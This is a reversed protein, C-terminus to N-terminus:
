DYYEEASKLYKATRDLMKKRLEFDVEQNAVYSPHWQFGMEFRYGELINLEEKFKQINDRFQEFDEVYLKKFWYNRNEHAYYATLWRDAISRITMETIFRLGQDPGPTDSKPISKLTDFHAELKVWDEQEWKNYGREAYEAKKAASHERILDYAWEHVFMYDDCRTSDYDKDQDGEWLKGDVEIRGYDDYVGRVPFEVPYWESGIHDFDGDNYRHASESKKLKIGV